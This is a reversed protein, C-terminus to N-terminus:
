RRVRRSRQMFYTAAAIAVMTGIPSARLMMPLVSAAVDALAPEAMRRMRIQRRLRRTRYSMWALILLALVLAAAGIILAAAIPGYEQSLATAAAYVFAAFAFILLLALASYGAISFALLRGSARM